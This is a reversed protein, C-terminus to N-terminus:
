RPPVTVRGRMGNRLIQLRNRQSRLRDREGELRMREGAANGPDTAFGANRDNSEKAQLAILQMELSNIQSNVSSLQADLADADAASTTASAASPVYTAERHTSVACAPFAGFCLLSALFKM